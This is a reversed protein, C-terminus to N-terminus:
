QDVVGGRFQKELHLLYLLVFPWGDVGQGLVHGPVGHIPRQPSNGAALHFILYVSLLAIGLILARVSMACGMGATAALIDLCGANEDEQEDAEPSQPVPYISVYKPEDSM